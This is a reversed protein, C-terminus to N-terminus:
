LTDKERLYFGWSLISYFEYNDPIIPFRQINGQYWREGHVCGGNFRTKGWMSLAMGAYGKRPHPTGHGDRVIRRVVKACEKADWTERPIEYYLPDLPLSNIRTVEATNPEYGKM